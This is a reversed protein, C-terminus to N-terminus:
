YSDLRSALRKFAPSEESSINAGVVIVNDPTAVSSDHFPTGVDSSAQKQEPLATEAAGGTYPEATVKDVSEAEVKNPDFLSEVMDDVNRDKAEKRLGVIENMALSLLSGIKELRDSESKSCWSSAADMADLLSDGTAEKLVSKGEDLESGKRILDSLVDQVTSM